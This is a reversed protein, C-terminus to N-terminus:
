NLIWERGRIWKKEAGGLWYSFFIRLGYLIYLTSLLSNPFSRDVCLFDMKVGKNLIVETSPSDTSPGLLKGFAIPTRVQSLKIKPVM